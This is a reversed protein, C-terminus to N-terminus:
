KTREEHCREAQPKRIYYPELAYASVTDGKQAAEFAIRCASSARQLTFNEAAFVARTGLTDEIVERYAAAGDGLLLVKEEGTELLVQRVPLARYETLRTFGGDTRYLANYVEQRRADLLPCVLGTFHAGNLALSDLTNVAACPKEGAQAFAKVAAVGIRIGTFSGPGVACAFVDVDRIDASASKLLADVMPMLGESHTRGRDLYHEAILKKDESLAVSCVGGTTDVALILM